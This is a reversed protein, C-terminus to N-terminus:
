SHERARHGGTGFEAPTQVHLHKIAMCTYAKSAHMYMYISKAHRDIFTRLSSSIVFHDTITAATNAAPHVAVWVALGRTGVFASMRAKSAGLSAASSILPTRGTASLVKMTKKPSGSSAGSFNSSPRIIRGGMLTTQVFSCQSNRLMKSLLFGPFLFLDAFWDISPVFHVARVRNM